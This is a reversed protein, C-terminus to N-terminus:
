QFKSLSGEEKNEENPNSISMPVQTQTIVPNPQETIPTKSVENTTIPPPSPEIKKKKQKNKACSALAKKVCQDLERCKRVSLKELDFEVSDKAKSLDVINKLIKLIEMPDESGLKQINQKLISKEKFSMPREVVKKPSSSNTRQLNFSGSSKIKKLTETAKSAQKKLVQLEEKDGPTFQAEEVQSILEEFYNSIDTTDIYIKSGPRNYTWANNWIRRIDTAFNYTSSYQGFNLKKEVTSLDMPESIVSEYGQVNVPYLFHCGCKHKKLQGLIKECKKFAEIAGKGMKKLQEKNTYGLDDILPPHKERTSHRQNGSDEKQETFHEKRNQPNNSM